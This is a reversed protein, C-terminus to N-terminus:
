WAEAPAWIYWTGDAEGYAARTQSVASTAGLRVSRVFLNTASHKKSRCGILLTANNQRSSAAPTSLPKESCRTEYIRLYCRLIVVLLWVNTAYLCFISLCSFSHLNSHAAQHHFPSRPLRPCYLLTSWGLHPSDIARLVLLAHASQDCWGVIPYYQVLRSLWESLCHM